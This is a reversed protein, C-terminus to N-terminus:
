IVDSVKLDFLLDGFDNYYSSLLGAKDRISNLNEGILKIFFENNFLDMVKSDNVILLKKLSSYKKITSFLASGLQMEKKKDKFYRENILLVFADLLLLINNENVYNILLQYNDFNNYLTKMINKCLTIINRKPFEVERTKLFYDITFFTSEKSFRSLNNDIFKPGIM